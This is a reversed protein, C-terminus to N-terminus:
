YACLRGQAFSQAVPGVHEVQPISTPSAHTSATAEAALQDLRPNRFLDAVTLHMGARRAEGVLKMAAISDGGLRFFSDDLGISDADIALVSAWLQQMTREAPTSPWRKVYESSDRIDIRQELAKRDVKDNQNVPMADLITLTQPVM